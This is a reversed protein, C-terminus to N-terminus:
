RRKNEIKKFSSGRVPIKKENWLTLSADKLKYLKARKECGNRMCVRESATGNKRERWKHFGCACLIASILDGKKQM